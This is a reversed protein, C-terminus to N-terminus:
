SKSKLSSRMPSEPTPFVHMRKLDIDECVQSWVEKIVNDKCIRQPHM